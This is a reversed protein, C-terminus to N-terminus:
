LVMFYNVDGSYIHRYFIVFCVVSLLLVGIMMLRIKYFLCCIQM